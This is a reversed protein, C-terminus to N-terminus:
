DHHLLMAAAWTFDTVNSNEFCADKYSRALSTGKVLHGEYFRAMFQTASKADVEWRFGLVSVGRTAHLAETTHASIGECASLTVLRTAAPLWSSLIEVSLGDAVLVDSSPLVLLTQERRGNQAHITRAHGSFHVVDPAQAAPDNLRKSLLERLSSGAVRQVPEIECKDGLKRKLESLEHAVEGKLNRFQEKTRRGDVLVDLNGVVDGADVFLMLPKEKIAAACCGQSNNRSVRRALEARRCIFSEWGENNMVELPLGFLRHVSDREIVFRLELNFHQSPELLASGLPELLKQWLSRGRSALLGWVLDPSRICDDLKFSCKADDELRQASLPSAVNRFVAIGDKEVDWYICQEAIHM